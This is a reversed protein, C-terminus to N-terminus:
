EWPFVGTKTYRVIKAINYNDSFVEINAAIAEDKNQQLTVSNEYPLAVIKQKMLLNDFGAMNLERFTALKKIDLFYTGVFANITEIGVQM